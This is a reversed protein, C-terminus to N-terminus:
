TFEALFARVEKVTQEDAQEGVLNVFEGQPPLQPDLGSSDNLQYGTKMYRVIQQGGESYVFFDRDAGAPYKLSPPYAVTIRIGKVIESAPRQKAANFEPWYSLKVGDALTKTVPEM